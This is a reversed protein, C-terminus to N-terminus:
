RKGKCNTSPKPLFIVAKILDQRVTLWVTNSPLRENKVGGYVYLERRASMKPASTPWLGTNAFGSIVNDPRALVGNKWASSALSIAQRKSFISVDENIM